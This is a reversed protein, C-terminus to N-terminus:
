SKFMRVLGKLKKSLHKEYIVENLGLSFHLHTIESQNVCEKVATMSELNLFEEFAGLRFDHMM